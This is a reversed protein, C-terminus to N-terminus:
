SRRRADLLSVENIDAFTSEVGIIQPLRRWLDLLISFAGTFLLRRPTAGKMLGLAREADRESGSRLLVSALLVQGDPIWFFDQSLNCLWDRHEELQGFKHLLLAGLTAGVPDDYKSRLLDVANRLVHGLATLENALLMKEMASAVARWAPIRARLRGGYANRDLYIECSGNYPYAPLSIETKNSGLLIGISPLSTVHDDVGVWWVGASLHGFQVHQRSGVVHGPLFFQRPGLDLSEFAFSGSSRKIDDPVETADGGGLVVARTEGSQIRVLESHEQGDELIASVQYVGPDLTIMAGSNVTEVLRLAEDRVSALITNRLFESSSRV